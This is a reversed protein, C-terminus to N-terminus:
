LIESLINRALPFSKSVSECSVRNVKVTREFGQHKVFDLTKVSDPRLNEHVLHADTDLDIIWRREDMLKLFDSFVLSQNLTSKSGFIILKQKARTFAVNLRRWDRLLEGVNGKSNSRVLSVIIAAKDRGQSKDVTLTEVESEGWCELEHRILKLQLRYPSMVGIEDQEVGSLRLFKVVQGVLDAEVNNQLLQGSKEFGPIGDTNVFVVRRHANVVHQIWCENVSCICKSNLNHFEVSGAVENIRLMSRAVTENGCKLRSGYILLNSIEMIEACMRYQYHLTTVSAPHAETLLRFLSQSLGMARAEVNKVLPPLQYHDGVLIFVEAFRLPGLCVPLTLQSAEDVICYDFKRKLFIGHKIGLCTTAVVLKGEYFDRVDDVTSLKQKKQLEPHVCTKGLRLFDVGDSKLKLLVNDVASHTYATLLVSKGRTVLTKIIKSITTTKGTGPMGLILSYDNAALVQKVAQKQDANMNVDEDVTRTEDEELQRFSPVGLHVVLRRRKEDGDLTFLNLLNGRILALGASLEDKDVRYTTEEKMMATVSREVSVKGFMNMKIGGFTQNTDQKYQPLRNPFGKLQRDVSVIIEESGIQTLFGIALAYHGYESSIVIPDGQSLQTSLFSEATDHIKSAKSKRMTYTFRSVSSSNDSCGQDKVIIMSGNKEREAATLTWIEKRLSQVDGEEKALLADWKKFFTSDLDSMHGTTKNFLNEFGSTKGTGGEVSKHYVACVNVSYCNGCKRENQIVPPLARNAIYWALENRKMIIGQMENRIYPLKTIEQTKLYFLLSGHIDVDYRDQMMLNYLLAQAQHAVAGTVKGTKLEFPMIHTNPPKNGVQTKIEISADINGKIGWNPSWIHEEIDLVKSICARTKERPNSHLAQIIANPKIDNGGFLAWWREMDRSQEMLAVLATEETEGISWLDELGNQIVSAIEASVVTNSFDGRLLCNQFVEHLMSGYVMASNSENSVRCMNQFVSKRICDFSDAVHTASVLTDPNTIIYNQADSITIMTNTQPPKPSEIIHVYSGAEVETTNWTECLKATVEQLSSEEFLRLVKEVFGAHKEECHVQLVLFRRFNVRKMTKAQEYFFKPQQQEEKATKVSVQPLIHWENGHGVKTDVVKMADDIVNYISSLDDFESDDFEDVEFVPKPFLIRSVGAAATPFVGSNSAVINNEFNNNHNNNINCFNQAAATNLSVPKTRVDFQMEFAALATLCDADDDGFDNFEDFGGATTRPNSNNVPDCGGGGYPEITITPTHVTATELENCLSSLNSLNSKTLSVIAVANVSNTAAPPSLRKLAKQNVAIQDSAMVLSNVDRTSFPNLSSVNQQQEEQKLSDYLSALTSNFKNLGNSNSLHRKARREQVFPSSTENQVSLSSTSRKLTDRAKKTHPTACSAIIKPLHEEDFENPSFNTNPAFSQNDSSKNWLKSIKSDSSTVPIPIDSSIFPNDNAKLFNSLIVGNSSSSLTDSSYHAQDSGNAAAAIPRYPQTSRTGTQKVSDIPMIRPPPPPMNHM